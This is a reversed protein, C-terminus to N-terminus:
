ANEWYIDIEFSILSNTTNGPVIFGIGFRISVNAVGFPLLECTERESSSLSKGNETALIEHCQATRNEKSDRGEVKKGGKM